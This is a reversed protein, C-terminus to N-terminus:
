MCAHKPKGQPYLQERDYCSMPPGSGGTNDMCDHEARSLALISQVYCFGFNLLTKKVNPMHHMNTLALM